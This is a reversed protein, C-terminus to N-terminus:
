SGQAVAVSQPNHFVDEPDITAKIQRLRPLNLGWYRMQADSLLPDVYGPYINDNAHPDGQTIVQNIGELFNVTTQSIPGLLDIAYSQLYYLADRHAYATANAPVDNIAGGELDFSIFWLLTGKDATDLYQFLSDITSASMLTDPTFSLSKAYFHTRVGGGIGLALNQVAQETMAAFDTLVAVNGKDPIPFHKDLGLQDYEEKSGYFNGSIIVSGQLITLLTSFKRSLDPTSIFDQWDTFLKARQSPDGMNFEFTYQVAKGPAPETRVKFETVIGFGAAAGKVAFFVDQNIADSARVVSSNALVVEAELIHDLSSGWQRSTPGLGGITFHGGSGVQPCTGHAMARNGHNKLRDTVDGLLTGAGVVAHHAVPDMAFQQFNKMDVVVEGDM